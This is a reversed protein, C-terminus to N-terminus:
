TEVWEGGKGESTNRGEGGSQKDSKQKEIPHSDIRQGLPDSQEERKLNMEICKLNLYKREGVEKDKWNIPRRGM